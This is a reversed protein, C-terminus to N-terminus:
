VGMQTFQGVLDGDEELVLSILCQGEVWGYRILCPLHLDKLLLRLGLHPDQTVEGM